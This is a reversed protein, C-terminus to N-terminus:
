WLGDARGSVLWWAVDEVTAHQQQGASVLEPVLIGVHLLLDAVIDAGTLDVLTPHLPLGVPACPVGKDLKLDAILLHTDRERDITLETKKKVKSNPIICRLTRKERERRERTNGLAM